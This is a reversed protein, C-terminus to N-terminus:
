TLRPRLGQRPRGDDAGVGGHLVLLPFVDSRRALTEGVPRPLSVPRGRHQVHGYSGSVFPARKCVGADNSYSRAVLTSPASADSCLSPGSARMMAPPWLRRGIIFSRSAFGSCRISMLSRASSEYM